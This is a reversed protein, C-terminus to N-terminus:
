RTRPMKIIDNIDPPEGTVNEIKIPININEFSRGNIIYKVFSCIPEAQSSLYWDGQWIGLPVAFSIIYKESGIQASSITENNIIISVPIKETPSLNYWTWLKRTIQKACGKTFKDDYMVFIRSDGNVIVPHEGDLIIQKVYVDPFVYYVMGACLGVGVLINCFLLISAKVKNRKWWVVTDAIVKKM